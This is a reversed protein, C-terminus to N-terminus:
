GPSASLFARVESSFREPADINCAHGPIFVLRSRGKAMGSTRSATAEPM